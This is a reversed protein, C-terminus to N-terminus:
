GKAIVRKKSIILKRAGFILYSILFIGGTFIILYARQGILFAARDAPPTGAIAFVAYWGGELVGLAGPTLSLILSLQAVPIGAFLVFASIDLGLAASLFYLRAILTLYKVTTLILVNSLAGREFLRFEDLNRIRGLYDDRILRNLLPIAKLCSCTRLLFNKLIVIFTSNRKVIFFFASVFLILVILLTEHQTTVDFLYLLAPVILIFIFLFDFIKEFFVAALARKFTIKNSRRLLAPRLLFDGGARSVYQGFFQGSAFYLFYDRYSYVKKGEVKNTIYGWRISSIICVSLSSIFWLFLFFLTPQVVESVSKIGGIYAILSFAVLGILYGIVKKFKGLKSPFHIRRM